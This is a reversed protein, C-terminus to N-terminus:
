RPGNGHAPSRPRWGYRVLLPLGIATVLIRNRRSMRERWVEDARLTIEGFRFRSPNGHIGHSPGLTVRADGLHDLQSPSCSLGLKGLATEVTRRPQRVFDEYRVRAVPVGCPALSEAQSQYSVWRAAATTPKKTWMVAAGNLDHPRAVDRKSLSHAVGRVDRVLHIVRVDIGARSLALAQVPWKSADVVCTAGAEDAVARYLGAFLAGYRAVDARYKRGALPIAVLRLMYRQRAVRRQLALLEALSENTWGGFTREGVRAWFTCDAFAEGCGCREQRSAERRFLDIVEGINVYGPIGGLARELLTSGSRGSGAIFVVTPAGSPSKGPGATLGAARTRQDGGPVSPVPLIKTVEAARGKQRTRDAGAQSM